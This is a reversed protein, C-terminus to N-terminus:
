ANDVMKSQMAVRVCGDLDAKCFDNYGLKIKSLAASLGFSLAAAVFMGIVVHRKKM